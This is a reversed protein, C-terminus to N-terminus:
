DALRQQACMLEASAALAGDVRAEGAFV